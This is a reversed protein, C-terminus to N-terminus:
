RESVIVSTFANLMGGHAACGSSYPFIGAENFTMTETTGPMVLKYFIMHPYRDDNHVVVRDGVELHMAVPMVYAHGGAQQVDTAGRPITFAIVGDAPRSAVVVPGAAALAPLTPTADPRVTWAAAAKNMAALVMLSAVGVRQWRIAVSLRPVPFLVDRDLIM